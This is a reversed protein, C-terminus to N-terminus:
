STTARRASSRRRCGCTEIVSGRRSGRSLPLWTRLDSKYWLLKIDSCNQFHLKIKIKIRLSKEEIWNENQFQNTDKVKERNRVSSGGGSRRRRRWLLWFCNESLQIESWFLQPLFFLQFALRINFHPCRTCGLHMKEVFFPVLNPKLSGLFRNQDFLETIKFQNM